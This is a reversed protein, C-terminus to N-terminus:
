CQLSGASEGTGSSSSSSGASPQVATLAAFMAFVQRLQSDSFGELHDLVNALYSSYQALLARHSVALAALAQLL